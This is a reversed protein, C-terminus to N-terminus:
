NEKESTTKGDLSADKLTNDLSPFKKNYASVASRVSPYINDQGIKDTLGTVRLLDRLPANARAIWLDM